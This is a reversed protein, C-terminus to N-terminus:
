VGRLRNKKTGGVRWCDKKEDHGGAFYRLEPGLVSSFLEDGVAHYGVWDTLPLCVYKYSIRNLFTRKSKVRGTYLSPGM